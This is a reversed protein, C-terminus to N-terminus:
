EIILVYFICITFQGNIKFPIFEVTLALFTCVNIKILQNMLEDSPIPVNWKLM